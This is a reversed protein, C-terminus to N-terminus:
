PKVKEDGSAGTKTLTEIVVDTPMSTPGLTQSVGASTPSIEGGNDEPPNGDYIVSRRRQLYADRTFSYRDLAAEELMTGAKLLDSREDIV